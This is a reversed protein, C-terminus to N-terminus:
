KKKNSRKKSKAKEAEILQKDLEDMKLDEDDEEEDDETEEEETEEEETEEEETEEEETEEEETEEEEAETEEEETETEEETEEEETETEEEEDDYDDDELAVGSMLASVDGPSKIMNSVVSFLDCDSVLAKELVAKLKDSFCVPKRITAPYSVVSYRTKLREGKKNIQLFIASDPDSIDCDNSFFADMIGNFVSKPFMAISPKFSEAKTWEESPSSRHKRPTVGWLYRVSPAMSDAVDDDLKGSKIAKCVPCVGNLKIKRKKLFKKVFPHNIIPNEKPDLCICSKGDRNINYHTVVSLFNKGATDDCPDDERCIPHIYVVSDGSPPKWFDGGRQEDNYSKRMKKMDVM